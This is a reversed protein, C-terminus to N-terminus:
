QVEKLTVACEIATLINIVGFVSCIVAIVYPFREYRVSSDNLYKLLFFCEVQQNKKGKGKRSGVYEAIGHKQIQFDMM